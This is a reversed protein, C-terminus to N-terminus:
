ANPGQVGPLTLGGEGWEAWFAAEIGCVGACFLYFGYGSQSSWHRNDGYGRFICLSKEANLASEGFSNRVRVM